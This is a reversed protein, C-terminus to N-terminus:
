RRRRRERPRVQDPEVGDLLERARSVAEAHSGALEGVADRDAMEALELMWGPKGGVHRIRGARVGGLRIEGDPTFTLAPGPPKPPSSPPEPAEVGLLERARAVAAAHTPHLEGVTPRDGLAALELLWPVPSSGVNAIRGARVGALSITGDAAFAITM